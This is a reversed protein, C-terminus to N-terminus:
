KLNKLIKYIKEDTPLIVYKMEMDDIIESFHDIEASFESLISKVGPYLNKSNKINDVFTIAENRLNKLEDKNRLYFDKDEFAYEYLDITISHLKYKSENIINKTKDVMNLIEDFHREQIKQFATKITERTDTIKEELNDM